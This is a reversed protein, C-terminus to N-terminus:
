GTFLAATELIGSNNKTPDPRTMFFLALPPIVAFLLDPLTSHKVKSHEMEQLTILKARKSCLYFSWVM